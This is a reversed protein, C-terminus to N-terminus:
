RGRRGGFLLVLALVASILGWSGFAGIAVKDAPAKRDGIKVLDLSGMLKLWTYAHLLGFAAGLANFATWGLGRRSRVYQNYSQEGQNLRRLQRIQRIAWLAHFIASLERLMYIQYHRNSMWWAWSHKRRYAQYGGPARMPHFTTAGPGTVPEVRSPAPEPQSM